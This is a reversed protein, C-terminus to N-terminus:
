ARLRELAVPESEYLVTQVLRVGERSLFILRFQLATDPGHRPVTKALLDNIEDVSHQTGQGILRESLSVMYLQENWAPNWLMRRLMTLLRLLRLLRLLGVGLLMWQVVGLLVWDFMWLVVWHMVELMVGDLMRLMMRDLMWHVM